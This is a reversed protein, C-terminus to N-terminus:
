KQDEDRPFNIFVDFFNSQKLNESIDKSFEQATDKPIEVAFGVNQFKRKSLIVLYKGASDPMIADIDYHLPLIEIKQKKCGGVVLNYYQPKKLNKQLELTLDGFQGKIEQPKVTLKLQRNFDALGPNITSPSQVGTINYTKDQGIALVISNGLNQSIVDKTIHFIVEKKVDGLKVVTKPDKFENNSNMAVASFSLGSFFLLLLLCSNKFMHIEKRKKNIM